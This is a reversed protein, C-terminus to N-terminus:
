KGWLLGNGGVNVNGASCLTSGCIYGAGRGTVGLGIGTDNSLCQDEQNATWGFRVSTLYVLNTGYYQCNPQTSWNAGGTNFTPFPTVQLSAGLFIQRATRLETLQRFRFGDLEGRLEAVPLALFSPYKANGPLVTLDAENLLAEDTWWTSAYALEAAGDAKLLLTWGGGDRSMDCVAQFRAAADDPAIPAIPAPAPVTPAPAIPAIPYVGDRATPDHALIEACSVAARCSLADCVAAAPCDKDAACAQAYGCAPCSGGCDVDTEDGNKRQDTCTPAPECQPLAACAPEQCDALGNGDEDGTTACDEELLPPPDRFTVADVSCAAILLAALLAAFTSIGAASLPLGLSTIRPRARRLSMGRMM